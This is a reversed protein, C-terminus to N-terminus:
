DGAALAQMALTIEEAVHAIAPDTGSRAHRALHLAFGPVPIPPAHRMFRADDRPPLCHRPMLAILDTDAVVPAVMLFSPVVLGVRRQLGRKALVQDVPGRAAGRGSVVVHPHDLWRGLDFDAAAPHGQRMLVAYDEHLLTQRRISDPAGAFVSVALDTEGRELAAVAADAGHWPMVVLDIGPASQCLRALLPALIVSAPHDAMVLRVVRALAALPVPDPHVLRAVDGLMARLPARLAEARASRRMGGKARELLPDGFLHRCRELAASTAPQSLGLRDAARSVHAEDLLADLITLLNLDIGRMNM